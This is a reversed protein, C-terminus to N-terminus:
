VQLLRDPDVLVSDIAMDRYSSDVHVKAEMTFARLETDYVRTIKGLLSTVDVPEPAIVLLSADLKSLTLVQRVDAVAIRHDQKVWSACM